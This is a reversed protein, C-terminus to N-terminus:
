FYLAIGVGYDALDTNRRRRCCAHCGTKTGCYPHKKFITKGDQTKNILRPHTKDINYILKEYSLGHSADKAFVSTGLPNIIIHRVKERLHMTPTEFAVTMIMIMLKMTMTMM